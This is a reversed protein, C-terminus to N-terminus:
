FLVPPVLSTNIKRLQEGFYGSSQYEDWIEPRYNQECSEKQIQSHLPQPPRPSTFM